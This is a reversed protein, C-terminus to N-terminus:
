EFLSLSDSEKNFLDLQNHKSYYKEPVSINFSETYGRISKKLLKNPTTGRAKCYNKFSKMQRDSLMFTMKKFKKKKIKKKM